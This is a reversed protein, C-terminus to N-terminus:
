SSWAPAAAVARPRPKALRRELAAVVLPDFQTGAHERLEQMAAETSIAASYARETTMAEFADAVLLIRSAFPIEAGALGAPYGKGDWREHHHLIWTDIPELDHAHLLDYAIQPHKKILETEARDLPGPKNLVSDPIAIKGLDHLLGALRLDALEEEDLGFMSGIEHALASVAQSHRGTYMDRSEVVSLLRELALVRRDHGSVTTDHPAADTYISSRNKGNRKSWYLALDARKKLIAADQAHTPFSAIGSSFTLIEPVAAPQAEAFRQRLEGVLRAATAPGGPIAIALEDGGLRYGRGPALQEVLRGLIVLVADGAPHGHRDNVRKFRDVDILCLSVSAGTKRADTLANVIEDQYARHNKLGTLSDTSAARLAVRSRVASRQYQNLAFLPAGVLLLLPPSLEWFIVGQPAIFAMISFVLGSHRLHDALVDRAREGSALAMAVCVLVVNMFVFIGGSVVILATLAGYGMELGHEDSFATPLSAVAAAIGYGASNFALKLVGVRSPIQAVAIAAAGIVVSWEWGFLPGSGVVFVFALSVLRDGAVDIPVPRLEAVLALAFFVAIGAASGTSRLESAGLVTAGAVLPAGVAIM